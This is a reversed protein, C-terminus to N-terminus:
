NKLYNLVVDRLFMAGSPQVKDYYKSFRDDEVYMEVLGKHAEKSYTPWYLKIWEQHMTALKISEDSNIDKTLYALPLQELIKKGLEEAYAYQKKSMKRIKEYSEQIVSEGYLDNIEKGYLNDNEQILKEKFGAFKENDKMTECREYHNITQDLNKLLSNIRNKKSTLTGKHKMLTDLHNFTPNTIINKIDSLSFDLEKFFLIQQLLDTEKTTYIRYGSENIFNPSLLGIQDYYRLTRTSIGALKGLEKITYNM